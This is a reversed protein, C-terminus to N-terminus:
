IWMRMQLCVIGSIKSQNQNVCREVFIVVDDLIPSFFLLSPLYRILSSFLLEVSIVSSKMKVKDFYTLCCYQVDIM